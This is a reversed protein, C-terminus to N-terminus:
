RAAGLRRQEFGVFCVRSSGGGALCNLLKYDWPTTLCKHTLDEARAQLQPHRDLAFAPTGPEVGLSALAFSRCEEPGPLRRQCGLQLACFLLPLYSAIARM